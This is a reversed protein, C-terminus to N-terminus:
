YEQNCWGILNQLYPGTKRYSQLFWWSDSFYSKLRFWFKGASRKSKIGFVHFFVQPFRQTFFLNSLCFCKNSWLIRRTFIWRLGVPKLRSHFSALMIGKMNIMEEYSPVSCDVYAPCSEGVNNQILSNQFVNTTLQASIIFSKTNCKVRMQNKFNSMEAFAAM